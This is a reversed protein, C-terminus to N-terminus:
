RLVPGTRYIVDMWNTNDNQGDGNVDSAKAMSAAPSGAGFRNSGKENTITM